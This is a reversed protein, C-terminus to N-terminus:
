AKNDTLRGDAFEMQDVFLDTITREDDKNEELSRDRLTDKTYFNTSVQKADVVTM